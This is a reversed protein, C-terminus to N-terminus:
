WQSSNVGSMEVIIPETAATPNYAKFNLVTESPDRRPTRGGTDRTWLVKDLIVRLKAVFAGTVIDTSVWDAQLGSNTDAIADIFADSVVTSLTVSGEISLEGPAHFALRRQQPTGDSATFHGRDYSMGIRMDFELPRFPTGTVGSLALVFNYGGFGTYITPTQASGADQQIDSAGRGSLLSYSMELPKIGRPQRISLEDVFLGPLKEAQVDRMITGSITRSGNGADGVHTTADPPDEDAKYVHRGVGAEAAGGVNQGTTFDYFGFLTGMLLHMEDSHPGVLNLMPNLLIGGLQAQKAMRGRSRMMFTHGRDHGTEVSELDVYLSPAVYTGPTVEKAIGLWRSRAM